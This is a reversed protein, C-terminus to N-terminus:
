TRLSVHQSGNVMWVRLLELAKAASRASEPIELENRM